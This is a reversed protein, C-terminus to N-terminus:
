LIPLQLEWMTDLCCRLGGNQCSYIRCRCPTHGLCVQRHQSAVFYHDGMIPVNKFAASTYGAWQGVNGPAITPDQIGDFSTIPVALPPRAAHSYSVAMIIDTVGMPAIRDYLRPNRKMEELGAFNGKEFVQLLLQTLQLVSICRWSADFWAAALGADATGCAWLTGIFGLVVSAICVAAIGGMMCAVQLQVAGGM